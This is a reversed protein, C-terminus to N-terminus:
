AIKHEFYTKEKDDFVIEFSKPEKNRIELWDEVHSEKIMIPTRDHGAARVEPNPEDTILAFSDLVFKEEENHDFICPVLLESKAKPFFEIVQNKSDKQVNEFFRTMVLLGHNKGFIKQWWFVRGLSDRRANYTGDFKRDFEVGEGAPRLHYRFPRIWKVANEMVVLPAYSDPFIREEARPKDELLIKLRQNLKQIKDTSIRQENLATKTEKELLKKEAARLRSEQAILDQKLTDIERSRWKLIAEAIRKEQGSHPEKLFSDELGKSLRAGSGALRDKFLMEFADLDVRAGFKIGLYKVDQQVMASYCM